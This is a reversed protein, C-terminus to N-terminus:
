CCVPKTDVGYCVSMCNTGSDDKLPAPEDPRSGDELWGLDRLVAHEVEMEHYIPPTNAPDWYHKLGDDFGYLKTDKGHFIAAFLFGRSPDSSCMRERMPPTLSCLTGQGEGPLVVVEPNECELNLVLAAQFQEPQIHANIVHITTRRGTRNTLEFLNFRAVESAEDIQDGQGIASEGNGVISLGRGPLLMSGSSRNTGDSCNFEVENSQTWKVLDMSVDYKFTSSLSQPLLEHTGNAGIRYWRNQRAWAGAYAKAGDSALHVWGEGDPIALLSAAPSPRDDARLGVPSRRRQSKKVNEDSSMRHERRSRGTCTKLEHESKPCECKQRCVEESSPLFDTEEWYSCDNQFAATYCSICQAYEGDAQIVCRNKTGHCEDDSNCQLDAMSGKALEACDQSCGEEAAKLFPGNWFTCAHAFDEGDCSVCQAYNGDAQVVCHPLKHDHCDSSDKCEISGTDDRAGGDEPATQDHAAEQAAGKCANFGAQWSHEAGDGCTGQWAGGSSCCNSEGAGNKGCADCTLSADRTNGDEAERGATPDPGPATHEAAAANAAAATNEAAAVNAAAAASAAAANAAAAARAAAEQATGYCVNAGAQWTHEAGDGCNGHWAGGESCCNAIGADNEGCADCTLSVGAAALHLPLMM